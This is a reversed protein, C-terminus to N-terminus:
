AGEKTPTWNAQTVRPPLIATSSPTLTITPTDTVTATAASTATDSPTLTVTPTDSATPGPTFTTTPTPSPGATGTPTFQALLTAAVDSPRLTPSLAPSPAVGAGTSYNVEDVTFRIDVQQGRGGFQGQQQGNWMIDLAMANSARVTIESIAAYELLTDPAAVGAFQEVADASIRIWTRQNIQISALVGSGSYRARNSPTATLATPTLTSSPTFTATPPMDAIFEPRLSEDLLADDTELDILESTVFVIIAIAALSVALLAATRLRGRRRVARKEALDIAPMAASSHASRNPVAAPTSADQNRRGRHEAKGYRADDYLQLIHEEDLELHRAYNRLMGRVQIDLMGTAAFEGAEFAELIPRRIRLKAVADGLEIENAERAERLYQGLAGVDM